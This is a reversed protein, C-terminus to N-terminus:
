AHTAKFSCSRGFDATEERQLGYAAQTEATEGSLDTVRSRFSCAAALEYSRIRASLDSERAALRSTTQQGGGCVRRVDEESEADHNAAGDHWEFLDEIPQGARAFAVGQHRAPLFGNTWNITGGAPFRASRSARYLRAPRGNRLGNGYSLGPVWSPFGM